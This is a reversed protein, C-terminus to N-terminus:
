PRSRLGLVESRDEAIEGLLALKCEPAITGRKAVQKVKQKTADLKDVAARLLARRQRRSLQDSGARTVRGAAAGLADTVKAPVSDCPPDPPPTAIKCAVREFPGPKSHVCGTDPM